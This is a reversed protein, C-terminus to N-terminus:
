YVGYEKTAKIYAHVNEAVADDIVAGPAVFFGGGPAATDILNKVYAEMQQPTGAKFLSAPVNGGICAWSGFKEKAAAMDTQDFMWVTKGAPLGAEAIFDLRQNYGGEVFMFPIIGEDILGLLLAKFSPWYFKEFDANSMFGDAGKHLPILILPNGANASGVAMNIAMPILRDLAELLKGPQRYMDLMVGRTGRLTDGIYDFPAKTFGGATAPLGMKSLTVAGVRANAGLWEVTAQGAELLTKFAAQIPPAAGIPAMMFPVFPMETSGYFSPLMQWGALASFVRPMYVRMCFGEPDAILADYEDPRMYEDEVCQFPIEESLSGGPWRYVKYGLLDYVKGPLFNGLATYELDFDEHFKIMAGVAKDYDYFMEGHSVGAHQAVYGGFNSYCPVRDPQKLKIVDAFRQARTRYAKAAEETEFPKGETSLWGALRAEFREDPTMTKWNEPLM